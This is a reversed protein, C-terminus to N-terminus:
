PQPQMCFSYGGVTECTSELMNESQCDAIGNSSCDVVCHGVDDIVACIWAPGLLNRCDAHNSDPSCGEPDESSLRQRCVGSECRWNNPFVDSPCAAPGVLGGAAIPPACCQEDQTCQSSGNPNAGLEFDCAVEHPPFGTSDVGGDDVEGDDVEDNGSSGGMSGFEGNPRVNCGLVFAMVVVIVHTVNRLTQVHVSM